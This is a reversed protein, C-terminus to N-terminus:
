QRAIMASGGSGSSSGPGAPVHTGVLQRAARAVNRSGASVAARTAVIAFFM